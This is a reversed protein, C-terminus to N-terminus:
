TSIILSWWPNEPCLRSCHKDDPLLTLCPLHTNMYITQLYRRHFIHWPLARPPVPLTLPSVLRQETITLGSLWLSFAVLYCKNTSCLAQPDLVLPFWWCIFLSESCQVEKLESHVMSIEWFEELVLSLNWSTIEGQNSSKIWLSIHQWSLLSATLILCSWFNSLHCILHWQFTVVSHLDTQNQYFNERLRFQLTAKRSQPLVMHIKPFQQTMSM